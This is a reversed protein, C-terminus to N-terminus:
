VSPRRNIDLPLDPRLAALYIASPSPLLPAREASGLRPRPPCEGELNTQSAGDRNIILLSCTLEGM